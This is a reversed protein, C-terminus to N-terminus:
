PEPTPQSVAANPTDFVIEIIEYPKLSVSIDTSDYTFDTLTAMVDHEDYYYREGDVIVHNADIQGVGPSHMRGDSSEPGHDIGIQTGVVSDFEDVMLSFDIDLDMSDLSRSAVYFVVRNDSQYANIEVKATEDSLTTQVAQTGILSTTMLDFLAGRITSVLRGEDDLIPVDEAAGVLDTTTNHQTAWISASDVGLNAMYQVQEQLVSASIMGNQAINTTRLNWETIHVDLEKEFNAEWVELDKNIHNMDANGGKFQANNQRFYYHEVVGDIADKAEDGLGDIITQNAAENRVLFGRDDVSSHYDSGENPTAMQVLIKPQDGEKFGATEMGREIAVAAIDARAAYAAEGISWYENGIEFAEVIDPYDEMTKQVFAEIQEAFESYDDTPIPKVPIVLTLKYRPDTSDDGEPHHTAAWDFMSRVEPRFDMEGDANPEMKVINLWEEGDVDNPDVPDGQGGPFRIHTVDLEDTAAVYNDLLVGYDTNVTYIANTGFFSATLTDGVPTFSAISMDISHNGTLVVDVDPDVESDFTQIGPNSTTQFIGIWDDLGGIDGGVINRLVIIQNGKYTILADTNSDSVYLTANAKIDEVSLPTGEGDVLTITESPDGGSGLIFGYITVAKSDEGKGPVVVEYSNLGTLMDDGGGGVLQDDGDTGIVIDDRSLQDSHGPSFNGVWSTQSLMSEASLGKVIAVVDGQYIINSDEANDADVIQFNDNNVQEIPILNGDSNVFNIRDPFAGDAKRFFDLDTITIPEAGDLGVTVNFFDAGEGGTLTDGDDGWLIDNGDGGNLQDPQGLYEAGDIGQILDNDEGGFATDLGKGTVIVDNGRGSEVLDDGEGANITDNGAFGQIYDDLGSGNLVNSEANGNISNLDDKDSDAELEADSDDSSSSWISCALAMPLIIALFIM